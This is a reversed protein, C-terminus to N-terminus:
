EERVQSQGTKGPTGDMRASDDISCAIKELGALMIRRIRPREQPMM